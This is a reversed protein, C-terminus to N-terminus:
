QEPYMNLTKLNEHMFQKQIGVMAGIFVFSLLTIPALLWGARLYAFGVLWPYISWTGLTQHEADYKCPM